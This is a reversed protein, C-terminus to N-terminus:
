MSLDRTLVVKVQLIIIPISLMLTRLSIQYEINHYIAETLPLQAILSEPAITWGIIKQVKNFMLMNLPNDYKLV